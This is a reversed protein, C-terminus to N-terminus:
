KAGQQVAVLFHQMWEDQKSWNGRLIYSPHFTPVVKSGQLLRCDFVRGVNALLGNQGTLAWFPTRGLAVICRPTWAHLTDRLFAIDKAFDARCWASGFQGLEESIGINQTNSARRSIFFHDVKNGPPQIRFVNAILCTSRDIGANVLVDNLLKGSRGVFPHGLKTEEAGPAEGVLVLGNWKKRDPIDYPILKTQSDNSQIFSLQNQM